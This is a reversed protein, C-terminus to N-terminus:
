AVTSYGTRWVICTRPSCEIRRVSDPDRDPRVAVYHTSNGVDIGAAHPHMVDLGPDEVRLRRALEKRQKRNLETPRAAVM